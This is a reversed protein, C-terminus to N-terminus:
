IGHWNKYIYMVDWNLYILWEMGTRTLLVDGELEQEDFMGSWNKNIIYNVRYILYEM